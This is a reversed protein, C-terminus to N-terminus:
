PRIKPKAVPTPTPVPTPSPKVAIFTNHEFDFIVHKRVAERTNTRPSLEIKFDLKKSWRGELMEKVDQRDLTGVVWNAKGTDIDTIVMGKKFSAHEASKALEPAVGNIQVDRDPPIFTFSFIPVPRIFLKEFIPIVRPTQFQLEEESLDLVYPTQAFDIEKGHNGAGVIKIKEHHLSFLETLVHEFSSSLAQGRHIIRTWVIHAPTQPDLELRFNKLIDQGIVGYCCVKAYEPPAVWDSKAAKFVFHDIAEGSLSVEDARLDAYTWGMDKLLSQDLSSTKQDPKIWVPITYQTVQRKLTLKVSYASGYRRIPTRFSENHDAYAFSLFFLAFFFSNILLRIARQM